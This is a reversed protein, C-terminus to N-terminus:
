EQVQWELIEFEEVYATGNEFVQKTIIIGASMNVAQEKTVRCGEVLKVVLKGDILQGLGIVKGLRTVGVTTM